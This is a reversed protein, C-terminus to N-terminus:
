TRRGRARASYSRRGRVRRRHRRSGGYARGASRARVPRQPRTRAAHRDGDTPAAAAVRVTGAEVLESLM